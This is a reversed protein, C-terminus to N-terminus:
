RPFPCGLASLGRGRCEILPGKSVQDELANCYLPRNAKGKSQSGHASCLATVTSRLIPKTEEALLCRGALCSLLPDVFSLSLGVEVELLVLCTLLRRSSGDALPAPVQIAIALCKGPRLAPAM